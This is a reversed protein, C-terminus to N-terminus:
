CDSFTRRRPRHEAARGRFAVLAYAAGERGGIEVQGARERVEPPLHSRAGRGFTAVQNGFHVECGAARL